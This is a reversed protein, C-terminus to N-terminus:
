QNRNVFLSSQPQFTYGNGNYDVNIEGTAPNYEFSKNQGFNSMTVDDIEIKIWGNVGGLGILEPHQFISTGSVPDKAGGNGVIGIFPPANNSGTTYTINTINDKVQPACYAAVPPAIFDSHVGAYYPRKPQNNYYYGSEVFWEYPIPNLHKLMQSEERTYNRKAEIRDNFNFLPSYMKRTWDLLAMFAHSAYEPILMDSGTSQFVLLVQTLRSKKGNSNFLHIKRNERDNKYYGFDNYLAPYRDRLYPVYCDTVCGCGSLLLANEETNAPCGCSLTDVKCITRESPIEIASVFVGAANYKPSWTFSQEVIDGNKLLRTFTKNTRTVGEIVVDVQVNGDAITPCMCEGDDCSTCSCKKDPKPIINKIQDEFLAALDGCDDVTYVGLLTEVSDPYDIKSSVVDVWKRVISEKTKKFLKYWGRSAAEKLMPYGVQGENESMIMYSLIEEHVTRPM